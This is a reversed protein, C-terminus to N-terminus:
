LGDEKGYIREIYSDVLAERAAPVRYVHSGCSGNYYEIVAKGAAERAVSREVGANAMARVWRLMQTYEDEHTRFYSMAYLGEKAAGEVRFIRVM